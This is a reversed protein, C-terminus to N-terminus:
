GRPQPRLLHQGFWSLARENDVQHPFSHDMGLGPVTAPLEFVLHRVPTGRARWSRVLGAQDAFPVVDDNRASHVLVPARPAVRGLRQAAAWRAFGPIALLAEVVPRGDATLRSPPLLGYAAAADPLCMHAVRRLFERGAPSLVADIPGRLGPETAIASNAAWGATPLAIVSRTRLAAAVDRPPAGSYVARLPLAPAYSPQLEAAAGAAAGGQSYGWFGVAGTPGAAAAGARVADIVARGQEVRNLYTHTGRQRMGLYDPVVVAYGRALLLAVSSAEYGVQGGAGSVSVPTTFAYSPACRDGQGYTGVAM